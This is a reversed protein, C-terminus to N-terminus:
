IGDGKIESDRWIRRHGDLNGTIGRLGEFDKLHGSIRRIIGFGSIYMKIVLDM